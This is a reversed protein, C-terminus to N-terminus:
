RRNYILWSIKLTLLSIIIIMDGWVNNSLIGTDSHFYTLANILSLTFMVWLTLRQYRYKNRRYMENYLADYLEKNRRAKFWVISYWLGGLPLVASQAFFLFKQWFGGLYLDWPYSFCLVTMGNELDGGRLHYDLTGAFICLLGITEVIVAWYRRRDLKEIIKGDM